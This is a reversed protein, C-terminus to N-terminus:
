LGQLAYSVPSVFNVGLFSVFAINQISNLFMFSERKRTFISVSVALLLLAIGYGNVASNTEAGCTGTYRHYNFFVPEYYDPDQMVTINGSLCKTCNVFSNGLYCTECSYHCSLVASALALLLIIRRLM